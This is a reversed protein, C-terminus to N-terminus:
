NRKRSIIMLMIVFFSAIWVWGPITPDPKALDMWNGIISPGILVLAAIGMATWGWPGLAGLFGGLRGLLMAGAGITVTGAWGSGFGPIKVEKKAEDEDTQNMMVLGTILIILLILNANKDLWQILDSM